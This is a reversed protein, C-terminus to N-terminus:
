IARVIARMAAELERGSDGRTTSVPSAPLMAAEADGGGATCGCAAEALRAPAAPRSAALRRDRRIAAHSVPRVGTPREGVACAEGGALPLLYAIIEQPWVAVFEAGAARLRDASHMGWSVGVVRVGEAIAAETDGVTDTVLVTDGAAVATEEGGEDFAPACRRGVGQAADALYRRLGAGKDPEVDGGFVHAFCFQLGNDDLV